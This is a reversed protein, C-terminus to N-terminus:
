TLTQSTSPVGIQSIGQGNQQQKKHCCFKFKKESGCGCPQYLLLQKNAKEHATLDRKVPVFFVREEVPMREVESMDYIEGTRSDM